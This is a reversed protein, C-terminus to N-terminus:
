LCLNKRAAADMSPLLFCLLLPQMQQAILMMLSEDGYIM